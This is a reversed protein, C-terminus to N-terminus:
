LHCGQPEVGDIPLGARESDLLALRAGHEDQREGIPCNPQQTTVQLDGPGVAIQRPQEQANAARYLGQPMVADDIDEAVPHHLAAERQIPCRGIRQAMGEGHAQKSATDADLGNAVQEPVPAQFGGADVQPEVGVHQARNCQRHGRWDM